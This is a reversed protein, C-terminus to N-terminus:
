SKQKAKWSLILADELWALRQAPTSKLADQQQIKKLGGWTGADGIKSHNSNAM